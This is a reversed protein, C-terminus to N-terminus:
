VFFYLFVCVFLVKLNVSCLDLLVMLCISGLNLCFGVFLCFWICVHWVSLSLVFLLFM